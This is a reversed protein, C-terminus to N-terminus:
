AMLQGRVGLFYLGVRKTDLETDHLRHQLVGPRAVKCPKQLM